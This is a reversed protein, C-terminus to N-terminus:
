SMHQERVQGYRVRQAGVHLLHEQITQKTSRVTGPCPDGLAKYPVVQGLLCAEMLGRKWFWQGGDCLQEEPHTTASAVTLNLGEKLCTRHM